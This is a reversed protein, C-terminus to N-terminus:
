GGSREATIAAALARLNAHGAWAEVPLALKRRWNPQETVTGPVNVQEVEGLLDELQM